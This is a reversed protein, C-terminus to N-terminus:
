RLPPRATGDPSGLVSAAGGPPSAPGGLVPPVTGDARRTVIIPGLAELGHGACIWGVRSRRMSIRPAVRGCRGCELLTRAARRRDARRVGRGGRRGETGM